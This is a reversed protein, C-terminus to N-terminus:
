SSRKFETMGYIWESARAVSDEITLDPMGDIRQLLRNEHEFLDRAFAVQKEHADDIGQAIRNVGKNLMRNKWDQLSVRRLGAEWKGNTVSETLKRLMKEKQAIAKETPAQDVREVGRRIDATSAKLNRAHKEAFEEPTLRVSM